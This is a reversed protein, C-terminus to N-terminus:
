GGTVASYILTVEVAGSVEFTRVTGDAYTTELELVLRVPYKGDGPLPTNWQIAIPEGAPYRGSPTPFRADNVGATYRYGVLRTSADGIVVGGSRMFGEQEIIPRVFLACLLGRPWWLAAHGEADPTVLTGDSLTGSPSAGVTVVPPLYEIPLASIGAAANSIDISFPIVQEIPLGAPTFFAAYAEGSIHATVTADFFGADSYRHTAALREQDAADPPYDTVTGDGFDVTWGTVRVSDHIVYASLYGGIADMWDLTLAASVTRETRAPASVPDVAVALYLSLDGYGDPRIAIGPRDDCIVISSPAAPNMIEDDVTRYVWVWYQRCFPQTVGMLDWVSYYPTVVDTITEGPVAWHGAAQVGVYARGDPSTWTEVSVELEDFALATAASLLLLTGALACACLLKRM